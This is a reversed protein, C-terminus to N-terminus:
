EAVFAASIPSGESEVLTDMRHDFVGDGNDTYLVVAYMTHPSMARLLEVVVNEHIGAAVKYAGLIRGLLEGNNERIAVWSTTGVRVYPVLATISASQDVSEVADNSEARNEIPIVTLGPDNKERQPLDAPAWILVGLIIGVVFGLIIYLIIKVSFLNKWNM